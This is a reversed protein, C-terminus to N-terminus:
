RKRQVGHSFEIQKTPKGSAPDYTIWFGHKRGDRYEGEELLQGKDNWTSWTGHHKGREGHEGTTAKKGNAHFTTWWGHRHGEFFEGQERLTSNADWRSRTGHPKGANYSGKEYLRGTKADIKVYPGHREGNRRACLKVVLNGEPETKLEAGPGCIPDAVAVAKAPPAALVLAAVLSLSISAM